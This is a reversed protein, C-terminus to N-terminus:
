NFSRQVVLVEKLHQGAKTQHVKINDEKTRKKKRKKKKDSDETVVENSFSYKSAFLSMGEWTNDDM